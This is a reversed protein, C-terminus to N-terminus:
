REELIETREIVGRGAGFDIGSLPTRDTAPRLSALTDTGSLAADRGPHSLLRDGLPGTPEFPGRVEEQSKTEELFFNYL